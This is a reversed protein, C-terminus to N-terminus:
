ENIAGNLKTVIPVPTKPPAFMGFWTSLDLDRLGAEALTPTDPLEPARKLSGMALIKLKGAQPLPLSSSLHDIFLEVQDGLPAQLGAAAGAFPIHVMRTGTANQFMLTALHAGGGVGQSAYNLKGANGKAYAIFEQITNAPLDARVSVVLPANGVHIIPVL